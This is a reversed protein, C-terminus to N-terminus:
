MFYGIILLVSVVGWVVGIIISVKDKLRVGKYLLQGCLISSFVSYVDQYPQDLLLKIGMIILCTVLGVILGVHNGRLMIDMEMEDMKNSKQNQVKRLVEERNM